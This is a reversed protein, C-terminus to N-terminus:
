LTTYLRYLAQTGNDEWGNAAVRDYLGKAVALGPVDLNLAAASEEVDM